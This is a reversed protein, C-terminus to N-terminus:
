LNGYKPSYKPFLFFHWTISNIMCALLYILHGINKKRYKLDKPINKSLHRCEKISLVVIIASKQITSSKRFCCELVM